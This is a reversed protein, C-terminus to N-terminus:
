TGHILVERLFDLSFSTNVCGNRLLPVAQGAVRMEKLYAEAKFVEEPCAVGVVGDYGKLLVKSVCSSGPLIYVDYGMPEAMSKAMNVLCDSSCGTCLYTPISPDFIAKCRSDMYKRACHPLLLARRRSKSFLPKLRENIAFLSVLDEIVKVAERLNLGLRDQLSFRRVLGRAMSRISGRLEGDTLRKALRRVEDLLIRPAKSLDFTFSYPM